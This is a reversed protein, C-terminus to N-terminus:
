NKEFGLMECWGHVGGQMLGAMDDYFRLRFRGVFWLIFAQGDM